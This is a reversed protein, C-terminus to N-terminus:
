DPSVHKRCKWPCPCPMWPRNNLYSLELCGVRKVMRDRLAIWQPRGTEWMKDFKTKNVSRLEDFLTAHNWCNGRFGWVNPCLSEIDCEQCYEPDLVTWEDIQLFRQCYCTMDNCKISNKFSTSCGSTEYVSNEQVIYRERTRVYQLHIAIPHSINEEVLSRMKRSCQGLSFIDEPELNPFIFRYFIEGPIFEIYTVQLSLDLEM